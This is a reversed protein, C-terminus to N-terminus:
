CRLYSRKRQMLEQFARKAAEACAANKDPHLRRQLDRFIQQREVLPLDKSKSLLDEMDLIFKAAQAESDEVALEDVAQASGGSWGGLGRFRLAWSSM